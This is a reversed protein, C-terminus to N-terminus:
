RHTRHAPEVHVVVERAGLERTVRREVDDAIHHAQEVNLTGDVIITLEAFIEGERGRSRVDHVDIVGPAARVIARITEGSVAREDVLIPITRRLIRWVANAIIGAVFLTFLADARPYGLAVLGLGVLVAGSAWVDSRTHAADAMLLDSGLQRAKGHEYRAVSWSVAASFVMTGIVFPTIEARAEGSILRRTAGGVLEYVTVALFAVIAMAGLTEFKAHGYPHEEDPAKAAVASLALALINNWADVSSHAAEAVVSLAGAALGAALKAAVVVLNAVLTIYLVRRIEAARQERGPRAPARM